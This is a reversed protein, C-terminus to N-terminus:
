DENSWPLISGHFVNYYKGTLKDDKFDLNLYSDDSWYFHHRLRIVVTYSGKGDAPRAVDQVYLNKYYGWQGACRQFTDGAHVNDSVFRLHNQQLYWEGFVISLITFWLVSLATVKKIFNPNLM